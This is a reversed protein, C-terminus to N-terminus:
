RRPLLHSAASKPGAIVDLTSKPETAKRDDDIQENDLDVVRVHGLVDHQDTGDANTHEQREVRRAQQIAHGADLRNQGFSASTV